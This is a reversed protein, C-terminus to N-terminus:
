PNGITFATCVCMLPPSLHRVCLQVKGIAHVIKFQIQVESVKQHLHRYIPPPPLPSRHMFPRDPNLNEVRSPYFSSCSLLLNLFGFFTINCETQSLSVCVRPARFPWVYRNSAQQGTLMSVRIRPGTAGCFLISFCGQEFILTPPHQNQRPIQSPGVSLRIEGGSMSRHM